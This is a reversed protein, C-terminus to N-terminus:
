RADGLEAAHDSNASWGSWSAVYLQPVPLGAREIALVNMCASVGSGCYAIVTSDDGVGREAFHSRLADPNLFRRQHGLVDNWPASRAGPIHGPRPDVATHAGAFRESSRADILVVRDTSSQAREVDRTTALREAPWPRALFTARRPPEAPGTELERGDAQWAHLGGDLLAASVGLMRLMVVLRGASMGGTDDYAVVTSDHGIGLAEMSAAFAAPAPLPHRGDTPDHPSSDALHRDLDVWCAGPLHGENFAALGSRGDLYWRVDALVAGPPLADLQGLTIIPEIM